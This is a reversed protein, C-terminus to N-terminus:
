KMIEKLEEAPLSPDADQLMRGARVQPVIQCDLPIDLNIFGPGPDRLMQELGDPPSEEYLESIDYYRYVPIDYADAIASFDPTALGGEFSTSPYNGDLWTRQTQRCMAHGRNNFLIIKIPLSHRHLTAMETINVGLGGDGTILIIRRDSAFAAGISAPLGYGMPTNNFAHIFRQGKFKFAQMMWGLACGTDSVIVDDPKLLDSLKEVFRYPNLGETKIGPQYKQKWENLKAFWTSYDRVPKNLRRHVDFFIRAHMCIPEIKRGMKEFKQIEFTDIDVMYVKAKPAFASAPTGVAKTDLRTGITVIVDANQVAFNAYRVGHTGFGGFFLPDDYHFLDLAGWTCVVPVNYSRAFELAEKEQKALHIGWGFIILPRKADNFM